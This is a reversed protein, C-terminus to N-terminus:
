YFVRITEEDAADEALEWLEQVRKIKGNRDDFTEGLRMVCSFVINWGNVGSVYFAEAVAAERSGFRALRYIPKGHIFQGFPETAPNTTIVMYYVLDTKDLSESKEDTCQPCAGSFSVESTHGATCDYIDDDTPTTLAASAWVRALWPPAISYPRPNFLDTLAVQGGNPGQKNLHRLFSKCPKEYWLGSEGHQIIWKSEEFDAAQARYQTLLVNRKAPLIRIIKEPDLLSEGSYRTPIFDSPRLAAEGCRFEPEVINPFM